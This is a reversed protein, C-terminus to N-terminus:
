FGNQFKSEGLLACAFASGGLGLVTFRFPNLSSFRFLRAHTIKKSPYIKERLFAAQRM